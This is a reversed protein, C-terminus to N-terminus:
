HPLGILFPSLGGGGGSERGGRGLRGGRESRGGRGGGGGDSDGVVPVPRTGEGTVIQRIVVNCIPCKSVGHGCGPLDKRNVKGKIYNVIGADM